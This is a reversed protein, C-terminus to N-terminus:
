IYLECGKRISCAKKLMMNVIALLVGNIKRAQHPCQTVCRMCSICLKKDVKKPNNMDIAGVPCQAACIGCKNCSRRARPVVGANDAKRYPRNGPIKPTSFDNRSLKDGIQKAFDRLHAYDDNDPRNTAYKHAISHEAIGAIASVVTFGAQQVIDQLEVLTDEYARNGYVCVIIAKAGNSGIKSIREAATAPVRGSYSPVAIIATDDSTLSYKSFDEDRNTLDIHIIEDSLETALKDAVKKTGGTPSFTVEYIKM